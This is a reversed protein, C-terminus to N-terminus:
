FFYKRNFAFESKCKICIELCTNSEPNYNALEREYIIDDVVHKVFRSTFPNFNTDTLNQDNYLHALCLMQYVDNEKNADNNLISEKLHQPLIEFVGVDQLPKYVKIPIEIFASSM